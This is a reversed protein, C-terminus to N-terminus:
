LGNTCWRGSIGTWAGVDVLKLALGRQNVETCAAGPVSDTDWVVQQIVEKDFQTLGEDLLRKM